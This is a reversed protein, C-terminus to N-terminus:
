LGYESEGQEQLPMCDACTFPESGEYDIHTKQKCIECVFVDCVLDVGDEYDIPSEIHYDTIGSENIFKEAEEFSNFYHRNM